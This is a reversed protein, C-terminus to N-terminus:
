QKRPNLTVDRLYYTTESNAQEVIFAALDDAAIANANPGHSAIFSPYLNTIQFQEPKLELQLTQFFQMQAAKSSGYASDNKHPALAGSSIINIIRASPIVSVLGRTMYVSTFYISRMQQEYNEPTTELLSGGIYGGANNVLCFSSDPHKESTTKWFSECASADGADFQEYTGEAPFESPRESRGTGVVSWGNSAFKKALTLGLGGSAGSIVAIKTDPM